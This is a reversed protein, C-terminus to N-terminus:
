PRGPRTQRYSSLAGDGGAFLSSIDITTVAIAADTEPDRDYLTHESIPTAVIPTAVTPTTDIALPITHTATSGNSDTATITIQATTGIADHDLTISNNTLTAGTVAELSLTLAGNGGAFLASIDITSNALADSLTATGIAANVTPIADILTVIFADTITDGDADTATITINNTESLCLDTDNCPKALHRRHHRDRYRGKTRHPSPCWQRWCISRLPKHYQHKRHIICRDICKCRNAIHRHRHYDRVRHDHRDNDCRHHDRVRHDHRDNDCRHRDGNGTTAADTITVTETTTADTVTVTATTAADTITTTIAPETITTTTDSGCAALPLLSFIGLM